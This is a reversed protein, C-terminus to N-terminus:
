GPQRRRMPTRRSKDEADSLFNTGFKKDLMERVDDQSVLRQYEPKLNGFVGYYVDSVISNRQKRNTASLIEQRLGPTIGGLRSDLRSHLHGKIREREPAGADWRQRAEEQRELDKRQAVNKPDNYEREAKEADIKEQRQRADALNNRIYEDGAPRFPDGKVRQQKYADIADAQRAEEPTQWNENLNLDKRAMAVVKDWDWGNEEAIQKQWNENLNLDKRAMAVVKDWDWGNEEAIQKQWNENLNLDKRAM